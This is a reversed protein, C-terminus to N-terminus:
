EPKFFKNIDIDSVIKNTIIDYPETATVSLRATIENKLNVEKQDFNFTGLLKMSIDKAKIEIFNKTKEEFEKDFSKPRLPYDIAALSIIRHAKDYYIGTFSDEWQEKTVLEKIPVLLKAVEHIKNLREEREKRLLKIEENNETIEKIKDDLKEEQEKYKKNFKESLIQYIPESLSSVQRHNITKIQTM